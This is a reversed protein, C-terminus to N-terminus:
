RWLIITGFIISATLAAVFFFVACWVLNYKESTIRSNEWIQQSLETEFNPRKIKKWAIEYDAARKYNRAIDYFFILCNKKNGLRPMVCYASFVMSVLVFIIALALPILAIQSQMLVTQVTGINSFFFGAIIGNFALIATAKTDAFRTLENIAEYTKWLSEIKTSM